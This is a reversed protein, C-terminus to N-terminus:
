KLVLMKKTISKNDFTLQYYYIGNSLSKNPLSNLVVHCTYEGKKKYEDVLTEIERGLVDFIKLRVHGDYPLSYRIITEPNFPNPYNQSLYLLHPIKETQEVSTIFERYIQEAEEKEIAYNFIKLEDLAGSFSSNKDSCNGFFMNERESIDGTLDDVEDAINGNLFIRVKRNQADRVGIINNWGESLFNSLNTLKATTKNTDDDISFRLENNKIELGYWKGSKKTLPDKVFSGKHVLYMSTEKMDTIKFWCSISFSENSFDISGHHPIEVYDDVGDFLLAKNNIGETWSNENILYATGNIHFQMFDNVTFNKGEDFKWYAIVQPSLNKKTIFYWTDGVTKGNSNVEDIRWYYKTNYSLNGPNYFSETVTKVFPPPNQTGFYVEHYDTNLGTEWELKTTLSVFSENNTPIPNEAKLPPSTNSLTTIVLTDSYDSILSDNFAYIRYYYTTQEVTTTDIFNNSNKELEILLEFVITSDGSKVGREIKYGNENEANDQWSLKVKSFDILEGKLNSPAPIFDPFATISNLYNELNTYGNLAFQSGDSADTPNLGNNIEWYDPMGDHDSDPKVPGQKLEIWGGVEDQSDIIGTVPHDDTFKQNYRYTKGEYNAYGNRVEDIIRKDIADRRPLIAGASDLVRLYAEVATQQNIPIYEFPTNSKISDKYQSNIEQVGYQWNDQTTEPSGEVFNEAIYWKGYDLLGNRSSPAVIRKKVGDKTAPGPKFYNAVLNIQTAPSEKYDPDHLEGGYISNFGWNYIVNNRFDTNGSGSAFRPNRSSHHAFLNHHYTSNKGGWIAGYGHEDKEHTSSYLSESIVCWQVTLNECWYLSMTEDISWSLSCHDIIINKQFRCSMADGNSGLNTKNGLRFRLYRIIVEDAEIIFPYGAVCIGDGPATQGAITIYPNKIVLQSKLHITGSVRFVVTRPGAAEVAYRLSGPGSDNLNTVEYVRGSRGGVTYKGWGEAGPFAVQQSFIITANISLLLFTYSILNKM